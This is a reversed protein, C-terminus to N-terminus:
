EERLMDLLREMFARGARFQAVSIFEDAQHAQEISGPGCIVASHGAQQFQGAETGYSVVHTGNDGTLRRALAEAAGDPEPRLGPVGFNAQVEIRASPHVAQMDREVRRVQEMYRARWEQPDEDPLVRMDMTFACEGATINPATGGRIMGVHVTTWPPDFLAAVPSPSAAASQANAENAWEILRAAQMVASVGRHLLSSHVEHGIVRTRFGYGGKHATVVQMMSPEGVIVPGGEPLARAMAEILPPAGLCGVEEDYSFALQLPRRLGRGAAEVMAWIALADFGKMDCTGRGYYRGERLTLTFPDSTWEQGDVPVVDTHGSLVVAGERLPGVHAFLGAKRGTEDPVLQATIGHGALHDRVWHVLDLNSERSVTPFAILRELIEEPSLRAAM